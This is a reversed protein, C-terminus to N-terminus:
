PMCLHWRRSAWAATDGFRDRTLERLKEGEDEERRRKRKEEEERAIAHQDAHHRAPGVHEVRRPEGVLPHENQSPHEVCDPVARKRDSVRVVIVTLLREMM